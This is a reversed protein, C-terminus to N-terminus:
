NDLIDSPQDQWCDVLVSMFQGERLAAYITSIHSGITKKDSSSAEGSDSVYTPHDVLGKHMPVKLTGRVYNYIKASSSCLLSGKPSALYSKRNASYAQKLLDTTRGQWKTVLSADNIAGANKTLAAFLTGITLSVSTEARDALDFTSNRNWHEMIETWLSVVIQNTVASGFIEATADAMDKRAKAEFLKHMERLDVAQCLTYIHSAVVTSLPPSV